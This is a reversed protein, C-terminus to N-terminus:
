AGEDPRVRKPLGIAFVFSKLAFYRTVTAAVSALVLVSVEVARSADPALGALIALAGSTLGLTLLYVVAGM